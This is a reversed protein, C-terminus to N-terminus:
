EAALVDAFRPWDEPQMAEGIIAWRENHVYERGPMFTSEPGLTEMELFQGCTYLEINCGGDPYTAEPIPTFGKVFTADGRLLAIVGADGYVGTKGEEGTPEIMFYGNRQHWQASQLNSGHGAWASWYRVMNTRWSDSGEGWPVVIRGEPAVCTLCWLSGTALMPGENRLRHSIVFGRGVPDEGIVLQRRLGGPMTPQTLILRGGESIADCRANDPMYTAESEPGVWFRHGGYIRWPEDHWDLDRAIGGGSDDFLVNPGDGVRLSMIRPGVESVAILEMEGITCRWAEKWPGFTTQEIQM